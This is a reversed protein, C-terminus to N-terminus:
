RAKKKEPMAAKQAEERRAIDEKSVALVRHMALSFRDAAEDGERYTAIKKRRNAESPM